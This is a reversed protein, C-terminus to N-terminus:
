ASLKVAPRRSSHILIRWNVVRPWHRSLVRQLFDERQRNGLRVFDPVRHLEYRGISRKLSQRAWDNLNRHFQVSKRFAQFTTASFATM